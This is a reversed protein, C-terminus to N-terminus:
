TDRPQAAVIENAIPLIVCPMVVQTVWSTVNIYKYCSSKPFMDLKHEINYIDRKDSTYTGLTVSAVQSTM